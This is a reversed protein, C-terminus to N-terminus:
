NLIVKFDTKYGEQLLTTTTPISSAPPTQLHCSANVWAGLCNRKIMNRTAMHDTNTRHELHLFYKQSYSSSM